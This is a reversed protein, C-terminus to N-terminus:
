YWTIEVTSLNMGCSVALVVISLLVGALMRLGIGSAPGPNNHRGVFAIVLFRVAIILAIVGWGAALFWANYMVQNSVAGMLSLLALIVIPVFTWVFAAGLFNFIFAGTKNTHTIDKM